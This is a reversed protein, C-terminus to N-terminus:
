CAASAIVPGIEILTACSDCRNPAPGARLTATQGHPATKRTIQHCRRSQNGGSCGVLPKTQDPLHQILGVGGMAIGLAKAARMRVPAIAAQHGARQRLAAVRGLM